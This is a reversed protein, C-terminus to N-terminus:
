QPSRAPVSTPAAPAPAALGDLAEAFRTRFVVPDPIDPMTDHSGGTGTIIVSGYNLLRGSIDQHVSVSEIKELRIEQTRLTIFGCKAVVRRNTLALESTLYRLIPPVILLPTLGVFLWGFRAGDAIAAIGFVFSAGGLVFSGIYRRLAIKTQLLIREDKLLTQELYSAIRSM